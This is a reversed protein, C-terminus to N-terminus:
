AAVNMALKVAGCAWFIASLLVFAVSLANTINARQNAKMQMGYTWTDMERRWNEDFGFEASKIWSDDRKAQLDYSAAHAAYNYHAMAAVIVGLVAGAAFFCATWFQQALWSKTEGMIPALVVLAGLGGANGLVLYTIIMKGFDAATKAAEIKTLQSPRVFKDFKAIYDAQAVKFQDRMMGVPPHPPPPPAAKSKSTWWQKLRVLM